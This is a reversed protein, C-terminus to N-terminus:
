ERTTSFAPNSFRGRPHTSGQRANQAIRAQFIQGVFYNPTRTAQGWCRTRSTSCLTLSPRCVELDATNRTSTDRKYPAVNKKATPQKKKKSNDVPREARYAYTARQSQPPLRRESIAHTCAHTQTRAHTGQCQQVGRVSSRYSRYSRNGSYM